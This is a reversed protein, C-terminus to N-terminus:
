ESYNWCSLNGGAFNSEMRMGRMGQDRPDRSDIIATQIFCAQTLECEKM